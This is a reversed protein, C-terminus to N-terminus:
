KRKAGHAAYQSSTQPQGEQRGQDRSIHISKVSLERPFLKNRMRRCADTGDLHNM